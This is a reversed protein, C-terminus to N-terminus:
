EEPPEPFFATDSPMVRRLTYPVHHEELQQLFARRVTDERFRQQVTLFIKGGAAGIEVMLGFTNPPHAWFERMHKGLAPHRWKGTYSVLFSVAGEGGRFMPGFVQKKKETTRAAQASARILAANAAMGAAVRDADSQIFTMGRYVTCQRSFPMARIRDSYPFLAMCLCNHHTKEAHLMPRANIVYASVIDRTREPYLGDIARALLLSIMTGPSADNASTFAIFADEPIEVDWLTPGAPTLGGDRELTFAEAMPAPPQGPAPLTDQPDAFEAPDVPDELTLIGAHDTVGYREACYYYLLTALVRYMGTGDTIGHYFDLHIRDEACCVSWVHWNTEPSNLCVPADQRLLVVPRPNADYFFASEGRRMRVSLYPYRRQTKELAARLMDADVADAMRVSIRVTYDVNTDFGGHVHMMDGTTIGSM